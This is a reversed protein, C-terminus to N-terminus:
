IYKQCRERFATPLNDVEIGLCAALLKRNAAVNTVVSMDNVAPNESKPKEFIIVPSRGAQELEFVIATMDFKTNVPERIRLLEEPFDTEVMQLFGRLSQKDFNATSPMPEGLLEEARLM